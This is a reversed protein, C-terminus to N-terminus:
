EEELPENERISQIHESLAHSLTKSAPANLLEGCSCAGYRGSDFRHPDERIIVHEEPVSQTTTTTTMVKIRTGVPHKSFEALIDDLNVKTM